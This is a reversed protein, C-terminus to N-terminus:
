QGIQRSVGNEQHNLARQDAKTIHGHDSAAMAREDTRVSHDQQHLNRAQAGTLDGEKRERHIRTDQRHLRANVETRRPHHKQWHTEAMANGAFSLALVAALAAFASNKLTIM